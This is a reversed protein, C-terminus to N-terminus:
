KSKASEADLYKKADRFLSEPLMEIDVRSIISDAYLERCQDEPIKTVHSFSSIKMYEVGKQLDLSKYANILNNDVVSLNFELCSDLDSDTVSPITRQVHALVDPRSIDLKNIIKETNAKEKKLEEIKLLTEKYFKTMLQVHQNFEKQSVGLNKQIDTNNM